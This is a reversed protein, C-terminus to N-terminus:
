FISRWTNGAGKLQRASIKLLFKSLNGM